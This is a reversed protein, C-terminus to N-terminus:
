LRVPAPEFGAGAVVSLCERATEAPLIRKRPRGSSSRASTAMCQRRDRRAQPRAHAHYPRDPWPHSPRRMANRHAGSRRPSGSWRAVTSAPSTRIFTRSTWRRARVVARGARGAEGGAREAADDASPQLRRGRHRHRDGQAEIRCRRAGEPGGRRRRPARTSATPRKPM